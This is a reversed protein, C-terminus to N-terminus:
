LRIKLIANIFIGFPIICISGMLVVVAIDSLPLVSNSLLPKIFMLIILAIFLMSSQFLLGLGAAYGFNSRQWLMIGGIIWVPSFLFDTTLLALESQTITTQSIQSNTMILTARLLFLIGLGILFGGSLRMPVTGRLRSAIAPMNMNAMLGIITYLSITIIALYISYIPNSPLGFLYITYNYLSYILAGPLLLLGILKERWCLWISLILIPINIILNTIDNYFFSEFKDGSSYLKTPAIIGLLSALMILATISLSAIYMLTLNHKILLNKNKPETIYKSKDM